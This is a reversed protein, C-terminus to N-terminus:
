AQSKLKFLCMLYVTPVLFSDVTYEHSRFKLNTPNASCIKGRGFLHQKPTFFHMYFFLFSSDKVKPKGLWNSPKFTALRRLLDGRDWPRCSRGSSGVLGHGTWDVSGANVPVAPSSAGM